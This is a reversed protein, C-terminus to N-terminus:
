EPQVMTGYKEDRTRGLAPKNLHWNPLTRKGYSENMQETIMLLIKEAAEPQSFSEIV